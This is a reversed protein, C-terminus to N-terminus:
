LLTLALARSGSGKPGVAIRKGALESLRNIPTPSRYFIWLPQYAVSGLSVLDGLNEGTGLGSQVFGIDASSQGSHLRHLNQQSGESPLIRLTVGHTELIKKYAQAYQRYASGPPGSSIALTRPPASRVFWVVALLCIAVIFLAIVSAVAPSFGFTESLTSVMKAHPAVKPRNM